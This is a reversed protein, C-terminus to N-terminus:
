ICPNKFQITYPNVFLFMLSNIEEFINKVIMKLIKIAGIAIQGLAIKNIIKWILFEKIGTSFGYISYVVPSSLEDKILFAMDEVADGDDPSM